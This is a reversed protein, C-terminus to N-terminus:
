RGIVFAGFGNRSIICSSGFEEAVELIADNSTADDVLVIGGPHSHKCAFLMDRKMSSYSHEGDHLFIDIVINRQEILAPLVRKSDGLTISWRGRLGEPVVWGPDKNILRPKGVYPLDISWLRGASNKNLASLIAFSSFGDSVGVEVVNSPRLNRIVAYLIIASELNLYSPVFQPSLTESYTQTLFRAIETLRGEIDGKSDDFDKVSFGPLLRLLDDSQYLEVERIMHSHLGNKACRIRGRAYTYLSKANLTRLQASIVSGTTKM